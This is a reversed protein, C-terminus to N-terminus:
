SKREGRHQTLCGVNLKEFRQKKRQKQGKALADQTAEQTDSLVCLAKAFLILERVDDPGETNNEATILSMTLM